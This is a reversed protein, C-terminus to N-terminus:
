RQLHHYLEADHSPLPNDLWSKNFRIESHEADFLLPAHFFNRYPRIDKPKAHSFSVERPLWRPGCLAQLINFEYAMVLDYVQVVGPMDRQYIAYGFTAIRDGVSHMPVGGRTQLHMSLILSRLASGVTPSRLMMEGLTGLSLLNNRQGVLLGFHACATVDACHMLLRGAMTYHIRNDAHDLTQPDLGFHALLKASELGRERLLPPLGLLAAVRVIGQEAISVDSRVGSRAAISTSSM